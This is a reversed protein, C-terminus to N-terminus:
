FEWNQYKFCNHSDINMLTHILFSLFIFKKINEGYIWYDFYFFLKAM